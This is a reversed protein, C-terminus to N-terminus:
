DARVFGMTRAMEESALYIEAHIDDYDPSDPAWYLGSQTNAKVPYGGPVQWPDDFPMHLATGGPTPVDVDIRAHRGTDILPDREVGAAPSEVDAPPERDEPPELDAPTEFEEPAELDAGYEDDFEPGILADSAAPPAGEPPEQEVEPLVQIRTPATDVADPDEQELDVVNNPSDDLDEDRGTGAPASTSWFSLPTSADGAPMDAPSLGDRAYRGGFLPEEGGYEDARQEAALASVYEDDDVEAFPDEGSRGRNRNRVVAFGVIAALLLIPVLALVWWWSWRMGAGEGGSDSAEASGAASNDQGPMELGALQSALGAPETSFQGTASNWSISGGGFRQTIVDGDQTQDAVPAGLDGTAGGLEQWAANMPGRVIVAGYDPTWFIVPNDEAAFQSMRSAPGLGGDTESIVPFGLDGEPGGVSEYKALVQGTVVAAGTEPSYFIKGNAFDQGLGNDGIEYPEGQAAGLPGMPGGAARLAANIATVPDDPVSLDTLQDALEPPATTFTKTQSDFSLEGNAFQQTVVSGDYTEDDVPVGLVGTSGGLQDWAANIAGRVVQAGHEPTWFIVPSDPASFTSNRSGPALGPGEDITPFGLDGDAAGGLSEYKDLIAGQMYHAGTEPTFFIRGSAFNQAFGGGAPYVDSSIPGLPGTDGGSAQWAATIADNAEVEPQAAAVPAFLLAAAVGLVGIAARGVVRLRLLPQRSM